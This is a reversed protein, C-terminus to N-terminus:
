SCILSESATNGYHDDRSQPAYRLANFFPFIGPISIFSRLIDTKKTIVVQKKQVDNKAACGVGGAIGM